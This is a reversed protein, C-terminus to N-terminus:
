LLIMEALNFRDVRKTACKLTIRLAKLGNQVSTKILNVNKNKDGTNCAIAKNSTTRRKKRWMNAAM